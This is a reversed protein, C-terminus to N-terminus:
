MERRSLFKIDPDATAQWIKERLDGGLAHTHPYMSMAELSFTAGFPTVPILAPMIGSLSKRLCNGTAGSMLMSRCISILMNNVHVSHNM